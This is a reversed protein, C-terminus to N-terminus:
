SVAPDRFFLLSERGLVIVIGLTTFISIFGCAFLITQIVTEGVRPRKRLDLPRASTGPM